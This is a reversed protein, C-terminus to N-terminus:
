ANRLTLTTKSLCFRSIGTLVACPARAPRRISNRRWLLGVVAGRGVRTWPTGAASVNREQKRGLLATFLGARGTRALLEVLQCGFAALESLVRTADLVRFCM